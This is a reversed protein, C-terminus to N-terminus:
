EASHQTTSRQATNHQTTSHQAAVGWRRVPITIAYPLRVAVPRDSSKKTGVGTGTILSLVPTLLTTHPANWQAASVQVNANANAAVGERM